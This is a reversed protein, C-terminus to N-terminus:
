KLLALNRKALLRIQHIFVREQLDLHVMLLLINSGAWPDLSMRTSSSAWLLMPLSLWGDMAISEMFLSMYLYGGAKEM